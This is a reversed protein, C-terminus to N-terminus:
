TLDHRRVSRARRGDVLRHLTEDKQGSRKVGLPGEMYKLNLVSTIRCMLVAEESCIAWCLKGDM